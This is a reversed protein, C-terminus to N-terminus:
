PLPPIPNLSGSRSMALRWNEHLSARNIQCWEAIKALDSASLFGRHVTGSEILVMAEVDGQHVHFHPPPHERPAYHMVISMGCFRSIVPM